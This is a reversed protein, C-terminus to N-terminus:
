MTLHHLIIIGWLALVDTALTVFVLQSEFIISILLLVVGIAGFVGAVATWANNEPTQGGSIAIGTAVGLIFVAVVSMRRNEFVPSQTGEAKTFAIAVVSATLVTEVADIITLPM